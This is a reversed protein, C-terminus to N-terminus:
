KVPDYGGRFFQNCRLIRLISIILGKILGHKELAQISYDSCCPYYRCNKGFLSSLITKYIKIIKILYTILIKNM